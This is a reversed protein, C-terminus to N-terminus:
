TNLDVGQEAIRNKAAEDKAREERDRELVFKLYAKVEDEGCWDGTRGPTEDWEDMLRHVAPSYVVKARWNTVYRFSMVLRHMRRQGRHKGIVVINEYGAGWQRPLCYVKTGPSFHKTGQKPEVGGEGARHWDVINGVLCWRGEPPESTDPQDSM